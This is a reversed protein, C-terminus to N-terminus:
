GNGGRREGKEMVRVREGKGMIGEVGGGGKVETWIVGEVGGGGGEERGWLGKM